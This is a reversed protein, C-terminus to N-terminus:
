LPKSISGALAKMEEVHDRHVARAADFVGEPFRRKLKAINADMVEEMTFGLTRLILEFFWRADGLEELLNERDLPVGYFLHKKLTTLLEGSETALGLLSHLLDVKSKGELRGHIEPYDGSALRGVMESYFKEKEESIM